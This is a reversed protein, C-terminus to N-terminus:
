GNAAENVDSKDLYAKDYVITATIKRLEASDHDFNDESIESLWCGKLIWTRILQFDPTYELLYGTVKYDKAYGVKETEPNYACRQWAMLVDKIGAGIYDNLVISGDKFEPKGAFHMQSNGRNITAKQISFHPVSSSKVSLKIVSDPDADAYNNVNSVDIKDALGSTYFVFTNNRAPEFREINDALYNVGIVNESTSGVTSSTEINNIYSKAM